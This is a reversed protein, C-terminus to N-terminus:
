VEGAILLMPTVSLFVPPAQEFFGPRLTGAATVLM